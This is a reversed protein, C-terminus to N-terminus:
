RREAKGKEQEYEDIVARLEATSVTFKEEKGKVVTGLKVAQIETKERGIKAAYNDGVWDCSKFKGSLVDDLSRKIEDGFYDTQSIFGSLTRGNEADVVPVVSTKGSVLGINKWEINIM